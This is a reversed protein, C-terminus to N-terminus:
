LQRWLYWDLSRAFFDDKRKFRKQIFGIIACYLFYDYASSQSTSTYLPYPVNLKRLTERLLFHRHELGIRLCDLTFLIWGRQIRAAAICEEHVKVFSPLPLHLRYAARYHPKAQQFICGLKLNLRRTFTSLPPDPLILPQLFRRTTLTANLYTTPKNPKRTASATREEHLLANGPTAPRSSVKKAEGFFTLLSLRGRRRQGKPTGTQAPCFIPLPRFESRESVGVEKEM